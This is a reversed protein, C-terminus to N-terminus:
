PIPPPLTNSSIWSAPPLRAAMAIATSSSISDYNLLEVGIGVGALQQQAVAQTDMCNRTTTGFTLKLEVGDKDRAMATAIGLLATWSSSPKEPDHPIPQISPDVYPTVDWETAAPITLGLNLDKNLAFRDFAMAIAQRVKVDQLAPHGEEPDLYFYWVENYGSFVKFIEIGAAELDAVDSYAFLAAYGRSQPPSKCADDCL